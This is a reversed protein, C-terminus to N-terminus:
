RGAPRRRYAVTCPLCTFGRQHPSHARRANPGDIEYSEILNGAEELAIKMQLRALPAGLCHHPGRGFTILKSTDRYIDYKDPDAFAREDRNASGPLIAVRSGAPLRTGYMETDEAATRAIMQNGSDYRLTEAAWAEARGNLGDRQVHPHLWGHYWANGITKGTSENGASIVLFLFAVIQSDALKRGEVKASIMVSTLDDGPHRRLESILAAFYSTLRLVAAISSAGRTESGDQRKNLEDTDARIRDWDGPPIGLMECVIDNPLAAAYDAAFDFSHKDRLPALRARALERIRTERAAVQRPTFPGSALRRYMGHSPPDMALFLSTDVARPGWLESELSIGNRSSFLAPTRLAYAVDAHRSLAWFDRKENRYLPAHARMWAYIPYPDEHVRYDFPDYVEPAGSDAILSAVV